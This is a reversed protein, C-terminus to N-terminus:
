DGFTYIADGKSIVARGLSRRFIQGRGSGKDRESQCEQQDISFGEGMQM